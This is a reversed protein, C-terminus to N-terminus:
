IKLVYKKVIAPWNNFVLQKIKIYEDPEYQMNAICYQREVIHHSFMCDTLNLGNHIFFSNDIKSSFDIAFSLRCNNVGTARICYQSNFVDSSAAVFESEEIGYSYYVHQSQSVGQSGFVFSSNHVNTSDTVYNSNINADGRRTSIKDFATFLDDLDSIKHTPEIFQDKMFREDIASSSLAKFGSDSARVTTPEKNDDCISQHPLASLDAAYVKKFIDPDAFNGEVGFIAKFIQNINGLVQKKDM